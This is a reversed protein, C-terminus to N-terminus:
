KKIIRVAKKHSDTTYSLLYVGPNLHALNMTYTHNNLVAEVQVRQGTLNLIEIQGADGYEGVTFHLVDTVPNPFAKVQNLEIPQEPASLSTKNIDLIEHWIPQKHNADKSTFRAFPLGYQKGWFENMYYRDLIENNELEYEGDVKVYTNIADLVERRVRLVNYHKGDPMKAAGWGNVKVKRYLVEDRRYEKDNETYEYRVTDRTVFSDEYQLRVPLMYHTAVNRYLRIVSDKGATDKYLEVRGMARIGENNVDYLFHNVGRVVVMNVGEITDGFRTEDHEYVFSNEKEKAHATGVIDWSARVDWKTPNFFNKDNEGAYYNYVQWNRPLDTSKIIIQGFSSLCFMSLFLSATLTKATNM